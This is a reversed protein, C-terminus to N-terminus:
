PAALTDAIYRDVVDTLVALPVAGNTLLARHFDILDFAPGLADMARQRESLIQLMGIMYATAQAPWVSYRGAANQSASTPVGVNDDSFQSAQDFTWALSHIGTDMVLRAARMAEFQLRGLNGFVDNDYWGLEYALREAYLAWGETFATSRVIKRFLPVNAEAAIAIQMHHGPLAEHFTLTPMTAYPQDFDTGAYFAGPRSGDFSPPIYFGGSPDPLVVLAAQPFVDFAQPLNAEAFAVLNEFTAFSDAALIIGGDAEVRAYLEQLTETQWPYGLQQFIVNMEAHIRALEDLGLQHIEAATMNTTTRHRLMYDYYEDGRPFQGVGIQPPASSILLQLTGLLNQYAPILDSIISDRALDSLRIQEASSLGPILAIRSRFSIFIPNQVAPTQAVASIQNIAVQMTLAPEIIGANRQREVHAVLQAFKDDTTSLRDLFDQADQATALPHLEEFFRQTNRPVGFGSYTVPYSYLEFEQQDLVDQLYWEYVDYNLQEDPSLVSRDYTRLKDVALQYITWTDASYQPTWDNLTAEDLPYINELTSTVVSEPSRKLLGGFSVQYFDSLTLGQIDQTFQEIATLGTPPPPPPPQAAVTSGSGGGGCASLCILLLAAFSKKMRKTGIQSDRLSKTMRLDILNAMVAGFIPIKPMETVANLAMEPSIDCM